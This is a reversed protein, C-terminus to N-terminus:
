GRAHEVMILADTDFGWQRAQALLEDLVGQPLVPERALIWLYSRDPGSVLAYRYEGDLLLINYGGYFPGFFSVKLRGETEPGNFYARGLAEKWEGGDGKSLDYGRNLVTVGGDDRMTYTATVDTLGREFRHDLRAIEFWTGLYRELSFDDVVRVGSPIGTCGTVLLLLPALWLVPAVLRVSVRM